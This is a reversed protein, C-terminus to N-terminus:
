SITQLGQDGILANCNVVLAEVVKLCPPDLLVAEIEIADVPSLFADDMEVITDDMEFLADVMEVIADDSRVETVAVEPAAVEVVKSVESTVVAAVESTVVAAVESTVVAAVESAIDSTTVDSAVEPTAESAVDSAVEATAESAVDSSAEAAVDSSTPTDPSGGTPLDSTDATTVDSDDECLDIPNQSSSPIELVRSSRVRRNMGGSGASVDIKMRKKASSGLEYSDSRTGDYVDQRERTKDSRESGRQGNYRTSISCIREKEPKDEKVVYSRKKKTVSSSSSGSHDLNIEEDTIGNTGSSSHSGGSSQSSSRSSSTSSHVLGDSTGTGEVESIFESSVHLGLTAAHRRCQAAKTSPV